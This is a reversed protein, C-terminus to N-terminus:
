CLINQLGKSEEDCRYTIIQSPLLLRFQTSVDFASYIDRQGKAFHLYMGEYVYSCLM